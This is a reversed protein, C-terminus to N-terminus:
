RWPVLGTMAPDPRGLCSGLIMATGASGPGGTSQRLGLRARADICARSTYEAGRDTHFITADMQTRGRTAVAADLAAGVLEADHCPGMSWGLLQRSALELV